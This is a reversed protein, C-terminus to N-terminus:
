HRSYHGGGHRDHCSFGSGATCFFRSGSLSFFCRFFHEDHLLRASVVPLDALLTGASAADPLPVLRRVDDLAEPEEVLHTVFSLVAEDEAPAASPVEIDAQQVARLYM